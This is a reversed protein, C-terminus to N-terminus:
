RRIVLAGNVAKYRWWTGSLDEYQKETQEVSSGCTGKRRRAPEGSCGAMVSHPQERDIVFKLWNRLKERWGWLSKRSSIEEDYNTRASLANEVDSLASYLTQRFNVVAEEYDTKAIEVNLEM